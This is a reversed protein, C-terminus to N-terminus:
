WPGSSGFASSCRMLMIMISSSFAYEYWRYPNMGKALNDNYQKNRLFSIIFHATASILLFAALMAGLYNLTFFVQPNPTISFRFPSTSLVTFKLYFTYIDKSWTLKLGLALM